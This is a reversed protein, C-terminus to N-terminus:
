KTNVMPHNLLFSVKSLIFCNRVSNKSMKKMSLSSSSTVKMKTALSLGLRQKTTDPVQRYCWSWRGAWSPGTECEHKQGAMLMSSSGLFRDKFRIVDKGKPTFDKSLFGKPLTKRMTLNRVVPSSEQVKIRLICKPRVNSTM